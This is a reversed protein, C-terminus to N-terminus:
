STLSQHTQRHRFDFMQELMRRTPWGGFLHGVPGLPLRYDIHDHLISTRADIPEFRHTHVWGAFPGRVQEDIFQRGEIFGRHLAVWRVGVPGMYVKMVLKAGEELRPPREIVRIKQDPPVLEDFAGPQMHWRYLEEASVPMQSKKDFTAM